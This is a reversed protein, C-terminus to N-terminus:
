RDKIELDCLVQLDVKVDPLKPGIWSQSELWQTWVPQVLESKASLKRLQDPQWVGKNAIAFLDFGM